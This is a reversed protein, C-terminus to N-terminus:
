AVMGRVVAVLCMITFLGFVLISGVAVGYFAGWAVARLLQWITRLM